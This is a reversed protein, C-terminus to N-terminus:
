TARRCGRGARTESREAARRKGLVVISPIGRVALVQPQEHSHGSLSGSGIWTCARTAAVSRSCSALQNAEHLLAIASLTDVLVQFALQSEIMVFSPAERAPMVVDRDDEAAEREDDSFAHPTKGGRVSPRRTAM